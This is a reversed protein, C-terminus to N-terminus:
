EEPAPQAETEKGKPKKGKPKKGKPKKGKPKEESQPTEPLPTVRAAPRSDIRALLAEHVEVEAAGQPSASETAQLNRVRGAQMKLHTTLKAEAKAVDNPHRLQMVGLHGLTRVAHAAAALPLETEANAKLVYKENNRSFEHDRDLPSFVKVM